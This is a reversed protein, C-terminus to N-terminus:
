IKKTKTYKFHKDEAKQSSFSKAQIFNKPRANYINNLDRGVGRLAALYFRLGAQTEYTEIYISHDAQQGVGTVEEPQTETNSM